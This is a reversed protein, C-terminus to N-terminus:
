EGSCGSCPPQGNFEVICKRCDVSDYPKKPNKENISMEKVLELIREKATEVRGRLRAAEYGQGRKGKILVLDNEREILAAGLEELLAQPFLSM